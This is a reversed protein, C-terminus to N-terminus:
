GNAIGGLKYIYTNSRNCGLVLIGKSSNTHLINYIEFLKDGTSEQTRDYLQKQTSPCIAMVISKNDITIDHLTDIDMDKAAPYPYKHYQCRILTFIKIHFLFLRTAAVEFEDFLFPHEQQIDPPNKYIKM